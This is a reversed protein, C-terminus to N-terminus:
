PLANDRIKQKDTIIRRHLGGRSHNTASHAVPNEFKSIVGSLNETLNKITTSNERMTISNEKASFTQDKIISMQEQVLQLYKEANANVNSFVSDFLSKYGQPIDNQVEQTKVSETKSLAKYMHGEGSVLWNMDIEPYSKKLAEFIDARPLRGLNIIGHIASSDTRCKEAFQNQQLGLKTLIYSFRGGLTSTDIKDLDVSELKKSM